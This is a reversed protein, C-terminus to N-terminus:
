KIEQFILLFSYENNYTFPLQRAIRSCLTIESLNLKSLRRQEVMKMAELANKRLTARKKDLMAKEKEIQAKIDADTTERAVQQEKIQQKKQEARQKQNENITQLLEQKYLNANKQREALRQQEEQIWSMAQGQCMMKSECEQKKIAKKFEENIDRQVNRARLVESQLVATHLERPGPKLKEILQQAKAIKERRKQAENEKTQEYSEKASFFYIYCYM